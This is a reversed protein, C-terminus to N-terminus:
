EANKLMGIIGSSLNNGNGFSNTSNHVAAATDTGKMASWNERWVICRMFSMITAEEKLCIFNNM